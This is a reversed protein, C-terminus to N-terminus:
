NQHVERSVGSYRLHVAPPLIRKGFGMSTRLNPDLSQVYSDEILCGLLAAFSVSPWCDTILVPGAVGPHRAFDSVAWFPQDAMLRANEIAHAEM